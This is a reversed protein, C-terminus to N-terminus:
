PSQRPAMRYTTLLSHPSIVVLRLLVNHCLPPTLSTSDIVCAPVCSGHVNRYPRMSVLEFANTTNRPDVEQHVGWKPPPKQEFPRRRRRKNNNNNHEEKEENFAAAIVCASCSLGVVILLIGRTKSSCPRINM